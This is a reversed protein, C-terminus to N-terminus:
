NEYVHTRYCNLDLSGIVMAYPNAKCHMDSAELEKGQEELAEAKDVLYQQEGALAEAILGRVAAQPHSPKHMYAAAGVMAAGAYSALYDSGMAKGALWVPAAAAMVGTQKWFSSPPALGAEIYAAVEGNNLRRGIDLMRCMRVQPEMPPDDMAQLKTLVRTCYSRIAQLVMHTNYQQNLSPAIAAM